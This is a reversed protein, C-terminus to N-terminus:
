CDVTIVILDNIFDFEHNIVTMDDIDAGTYIPTEANWDTCAYTQVEYSGAIHAEKWQFPVGEKDLVKVFLGHDGFFTKGIIDTEMAKILEFKKM